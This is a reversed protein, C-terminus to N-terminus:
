NPLGQRSNVDAQIIDLLYPFDSIIIIQYVWQPSLQVTNIIHTVKNFKQQSIILSCSITFLAISDWHSLEFNKNRNCRSLFICFFNNILKIVLVLINNKKKFIFGM